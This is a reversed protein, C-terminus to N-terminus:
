LGGDEKSEVEARMDNEQSEGNKCASDGTILSYNISM